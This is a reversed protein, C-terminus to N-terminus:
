ENNQTGKQQIVNALLLTCAIVTFILGVVFFAIAYNGNIIYNYADGGVYSNVNDEPYYESNEYVFMKYFGMIISTAAAIFSGIVKGDWLKNAVPKISKEEINEM